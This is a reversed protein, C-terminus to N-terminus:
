DRAIFAVCLIVAIFLGIAIAAIIIAFVLFPYVNIIIYVAILIWLWVKVVHGEIAFCLCFTIFVAVYFICFAVIGPNTFPTMFNMCREKDKDNNKLIKHANNIIDENIKKYKKVTDRSLKVESKMNDLIDIIMYESHQRIWKYHVIIFAVLSLLPFVWGVGFMYWLQPSIDRYGIHVKVRSLTIQTVSEQPNQKNSYDYYFRMGITTLMFIHLIALGVMYLCFYIYVCAKKLMGKCSVKINRAKTFYYIIVVVSTIWKLYVACAYAINLGFDARVYIKETKDYTQFFDSQMALFEMVSVMVSLYYPLEGITNGSIWSFCSCAWSLDSLQNCKSSHSCYCCSNTTSKRTCCEKTDKYLRELGGCLLFLTLNIINWFLLIWSVIFKTQVFWDDDEDDNDPTDNKSYYYREITLAVSFILKLIIFLLGFIVGLRSSNYIKHTSKAFTILSAYRMHQQVQLEEPSDSKNDDSFCTYGICRDIQYCPDKQSKINDFAIQYVDDLICTSGKETENDEEPMPIITNPTSKAASQQSNPSCVQTPKPKAQDPKSSAQDPKSRAQDPKSQPIDPKSRAQDPKSQPIDPKSRAQDPKSQPIDPKSEVILLMETQNVRETITNGPGVTSVRLDFSVLQASTREDIKKPPHVVLTEKKLIAAM